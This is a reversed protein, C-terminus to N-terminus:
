LKLWKGFVRSMVKYPFYFCIIMLILFIVLIKDFDNRYYVNDTIVDSPLCTPLISYSSFSTTGDRYIYNSDIFYDRYNVTRNAQPIQEYARIVGESYVYYCKYDNINAVYIKM